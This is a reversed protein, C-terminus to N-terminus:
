ASKITHQPRVFTGYGAQALVNEGDWVQQGRLFTAQVQGAMEMGHFPSWEAAGHQKTEDFIFPEPSLVTFDADSGVQIAGKQPYICFHKAVNESLLKAVVPIPIHRVVCGTYFAPLLTELGPMGSSNSLFHGKQKRDLSWAVHDSSVFDVHGKAIRQWLKEKQESPRIPPGQKIQAGLHAMDEESFMLYQVCTEISVSYNLAKYSECIEFGRDLSCHVVHARCRSEVGIEYVENIALTESIPPRSLGYSTYHNNGSANVCEIAHDVVEQNENHVGCALGSPAVIRFAELMDYPAIRAFRKPDTEYQSVKFGCAGADIMPQIESMGDQKAITGYLAVDVHADREVIDVKQKFIEATTVPIPSDYPMDVITTVGGAAAARTGLGIGERGAQSGTHVQGDIIGPLVWKGKADFTRSASGEFREGIETIKGDTVSVFGNEIVIDPTVINGVIVLDVNSM